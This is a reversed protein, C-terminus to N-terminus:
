LKVWREFLADVGELVDERYQTLHLRLTPKLATRYWDDAQTPEPMEYFFAHGIPYRAQKEVEYIVRLVFSEALSADWGPRGSLVKYSSNHDVPFDITAFRGLLAADL